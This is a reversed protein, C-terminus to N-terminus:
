SEEAVGSIPASQAVKKEYIRKIFPTLKWLSLMLTVQFLPVFSPPLIALGGFASVAIALTLGHNKGTSSFAIAIANAYDINFLYAVYLSIVFLLPYIFIISGALAGILGINQIITQAEGSIATFLVIYMGLSSFPPLFPSVEKQFHERGLKRLLALRTIIGFTLPLIIILFVYKSILMLDINVFNGALLFMWLPLAGIAIIYGIIQALLASEVNGKSLGTWVLIMGSPPVTLKLIWGAIFNPDFGQFALLAWVFALLPSVIFNVINIILLVKKRKGAQKLERIAVGIMMPYLMVFMAVPLYPKLADSVSPYFSGVVLALIIDLFIFVTMRKQMFESIKQMRELM